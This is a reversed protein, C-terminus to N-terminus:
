YFSNFWSDPLSNKSLRPSVDGAFDLFMECVVSNRHGHLIGSFCRERGGGGDVGKEESEVDHAGLNM